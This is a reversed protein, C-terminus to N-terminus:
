SFETGISTLSLLEHTEKWSRTSDLTAVQWDRRTAAWRAPTDALVMDRMVAAPLSGSKSVNPLSHSQSPSLISPTLDAPSRHNTNLTTGNEEAWGLGGPCGLADQLPGPSELAPAAPRDVHNAHGLDAGARGVALLVDRHMVRWRLRHHLIPVSAHHFSGGFMEM